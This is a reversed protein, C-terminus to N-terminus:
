FCTFEFLVLESKLVLQSYKTPLNVSLLLYKPDNMGVAVLLKAVSSLNVSTILKMLM